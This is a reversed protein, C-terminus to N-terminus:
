SAGAAAGNGDMPPPAPPETAVPPTENAEPETTATQEADESLEITDDLDLIEQPTSVDKGWEEVLDRQEARLTSVRHQAIATLFTTVVTPLSQYIMWGFGAAGYMVALAFVDTMITIAADMTNDGMWLQLLYPFVGCMNIGGVCFAAPKGKTRDIVWAVFTPLLGFIIILVTPLSMVIIGVFAVSLWLTTQRRKLTAAAPAQQPPPKAM